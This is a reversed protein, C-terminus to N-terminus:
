KQYLLHSILLLLISNYHFSHRQFKYYFITLAIEDDFSPWGCGSNFKTNSEYLPNECARCIFIGADFRENYEGMFPAETGKDKLIYQEETTLHSFYDKTM